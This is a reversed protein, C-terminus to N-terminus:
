GSRGDIPIATGTIHGAREDSLWLVLEAVESPQLWKSFNADPMAKRNAPTDMTGPLVVNATVGADRNELAVTRVLMVLAAKFTVYAALGAHPEIATLSGIAVIRGSGSKRLHPIAARLTYFASTLNLDQMQEWIADDTEAVSQGGAFAGVVHVLVDLRRYRQVISSVASTVAASKTFDVPLAVFNPLPFDQQSISRSAGIVTAGTALFSKTIFSGLGGKAGTIFIVRDSMNTFIRSV